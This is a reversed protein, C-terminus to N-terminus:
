ASTGNIIYPLHYYYLRIAIESSLIVFILFLLPRICFPIVIQTLLYYISGMWLGFATQSVVLPKFLRRPHFVLCSSHGGHCGLLSLLVEVVGGISRLVGLPARLPTGMEPCLFLLVGTPAGLPVETLSKVLGREFLIEFPWFVGSTAGRSAGRMDGRTSQEMTQEKMHKRFALHCVQSSGDYSVVWKGSPDLTTSQFAACCYYSSLLGADLNFM